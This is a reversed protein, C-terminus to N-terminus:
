FEPPSANASPTTELLQDPAPIRKSHWGLVSRHVPITRDSLRAEAEAEHYPEQIPRNEPGQNSTEGEKGDVHEELAAGYDDPRTYWGAPVRQLSPGPSICAGIASSESSTECRNLSAATEM